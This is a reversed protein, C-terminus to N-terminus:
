PPPPAPPNQPPPRPPAEQAPASSPPAPFRSRGPRLPSPRPAPSHSRPPPSPCPLHVRPAKPDRLPTGLPSHRPAAPRVGSGPRARRRDQPATITHAASRRAATNHPPWVTQLPSPVADRPPLRECAAPHPGPEPQRWRPRRSFPLPSNPSILVPLTSHCPPAGRWPAPLQSSTQLTSGM